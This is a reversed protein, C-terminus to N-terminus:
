PDIEFIEPLKTFDFKKSFWTAAWWAAKFCLTPILTIAIEIWHM